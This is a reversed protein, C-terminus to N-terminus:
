IAAVHANLPASAVPHHRPPYPAPQSSLSLERSVTCPVHLDCLQKVTAPPQPTNATYSAPTATSAIGSHRWIGSGRSGPLSRPASTATKLLAKAQQLIDVLSTTLLPHDLVDAHAEHMPLQASRQYPAAAAPPAQDEAVGTVPEHAPQALNCACRNVAGLALRDTTFFDHFYVQAM